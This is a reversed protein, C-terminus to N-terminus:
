LLQGKSIRTKLDRSDYGRIYARYLLPQLISPAGRLLEKSEQVMNHQALTKASRPSLWFSAEKNRVNGISELSRTSDQWTGTCPGGLLEEYSFSM